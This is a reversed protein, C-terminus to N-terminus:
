VLSWTAIGGFGMGARGKKALYEEKTIGRADEGNITTVCYAQVQQGPLGLRKTVVDVWWYMGDYDFPVYDEEKGGLGNIHLIMQYPAGTGNRLHDWHPCLKAFQFRTIGTQEISIDNQPPLFSRESIGHEGLISYTQVPQGINNSGLIYEEWSLTRGDSRFFKSADAPYHKEGFEDNSMTFMSANFKRHYKKSNSDVHGAGWCPDLLKWEGGDIKVANWAHGSPDRAPLHAGNNPRAYGIGKGHGTVMVCELGAKLAIAAYLGAYGGCVALGRSITSEPTQHKVTGGFFAQTDYDINHHLWTFIARAKDTASNFHRCLVDALYDVTIGPTQRPYQSAVQDPRSYDRCILCGGPSTARSVATPKSAKNMPPRSAYPIPPPIRSIPNTSAGPRLGTKEMILRTLSELDRGWQYKEPSDSLGDFWYLTPYGTIEYRGGLRTEASADCQAITVNSLRFKSALEEYVPALEKCYRCYPAYFEVLAPKGSRLIVDDFNASTLEVVASESSVPETVREAAAQSM